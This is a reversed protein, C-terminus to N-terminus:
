RTIIITITIVMSERSNGVSLEILKCRLIHFQQELIYDSQSLILRENEQLVLFVSEFYQIVIRIISANFGAKDARHQAVAKLSVM